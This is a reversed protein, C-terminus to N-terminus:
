DQNFSDTVSGYWSGTVNYRGYCAADMAKRQMEEEKERKHNESLDISKQVGSHEDVLVKLDNSNNKAAREMAHSSFSCLLFVILQQILQM